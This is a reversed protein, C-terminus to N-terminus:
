ALQDRALEQPVSMVAMQHRTQAGDVDGELRARLDDFLSVSAAAHPM